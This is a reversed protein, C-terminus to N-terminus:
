RQYLGTPPRQPGGNVLVSRPSWRYGEAEFDVIVGDLNDLIMSFSATTGAQKQSGLFWPVLTMAVPVLASDDTGDQAQLLATYEHKFAQNSPGGMNIARIRAAKGGNFTSQIAFREVSYMQSNLRAPGNAQQFVLDIGLLGGSVDGTLSLAAQWFGIPYQPELWGSFRRSEVNIQAVISL